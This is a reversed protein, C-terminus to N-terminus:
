GVQMSWMAIQSGCPRAVWAPGVWDIPVDNRYWLPTTPVVDIESRVGGVGAGMLDAIIGRTTVNLYGIGGCERASRFARTATSEREGVLSTIAVALAMRPLRSSPTVTTVRAVVPWCMPPLSEMRERAVLRCWIRSPAMDMAVDMNGSFTLVGHL